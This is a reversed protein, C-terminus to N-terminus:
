FPQKVGKSALEKAYASLLVGGAATIVAVKENWKM